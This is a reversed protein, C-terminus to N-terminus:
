HCPQLSLRDPTLNVEVIRKPQYATALNFRYNQDDNAQIKSISLISPGATQGFVCKPAQNSKELTLRERIQLSHHTYDKQRSTYHGTRTKGEELINPVTKKFKAQQLSKQIIEEDYNWLETPNYTPDAIKSTRKIGSLTSGAKWSRKVLEQNNCNSIQAPMQKSVTLRLGDDLYVFNSQALLSAQRFDQLIAYFYLQGDRSRKLPSYKEIAGFKKMNAIVNEMLYYEPIGSFWIKRGTRSREINQVESPDAVPQVSVPKGLISHDAIHFVRDADQTKFFKIIGYGKSKGDPGRKVEALDLPGFRRFYRTLNQDCAHLPLGGVLLFCHKNPTRKGQDGPNNTSANYLDEM